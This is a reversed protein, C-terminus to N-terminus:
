DARGKSSAGQGMKEIALLAKQRREEIIEELAADHMGDALGSLDEAKSVIMAVIRLYDSPRRERCERIAEIGREKWDQYLDDIMAEALKNRAGKPRGGPPVNGMLFRGTKEDRMM